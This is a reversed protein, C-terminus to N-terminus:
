SLNAREIPGLLTLEERQGGSCLFIDPKGFAAGEEEEESPAAARPSGQGGQCGTSTILNRFLAADELLTSNLIISL